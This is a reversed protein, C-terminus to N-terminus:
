YSDRKAGIRDMYEYNPGSFKPFIIEQICLVLYKSGIMSGVHMVIDGGILISACSGHFLSAMM